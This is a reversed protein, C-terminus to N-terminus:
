SKGRKRERYTGPPFGVSQRFQRTFASQDSYGCELAIFSLSDTTRELLHCAHEIRRRTIFQGISVGFLTRIRQDLQYPSFGALKALDKVALPQDIHSDIHKLVLSVTDLANAAESRNPLDRSIGAVGIIDGNGDTVPEKWTLCWGQNGGPYLHLELQGRIPPGNHLIALDQETFSEGLPAPFLKNARLGIIEDKSTRGCRKVLTQNVAIYKGDRDKVFYVCDPVSDFVEDALWPRHLQDFFNQQIDHANM